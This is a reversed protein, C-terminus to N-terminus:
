LTRGREEEYVEESEGFDFEYKGEDPNFTLGANKYAEREALTEASNIRAVREKRKQFYSKARIVLRKALNNEKYNKEIKEEKDEIAGIKLLSNKIFDYREKDIDVSLPNAKGEESVDLVTGGIKSNDWKIDLNNEKMFTKLDKEYKIEGIKSSVKYIIYALPAGFVIGGFLFGVAASIAKNKINSKTPKKISVIKLEEPKDKGEHGKEPEEEPTDKGEDGKEPEEESKDKGEDDKEPEEEPKDKGEDDKVPEEEPTDKGEDDKVPEEESKDKGEGINKYIDVLNDKSYKYQNEFIYEMYNFMINEDFKNSIVFDKYNNIWTEILKDNPNEMDNKLQEFLNNFDEIIKNDNGDYINKKVYEIAEKQENSLVDDISDKSLGVQELITIYADKKSPDMKIIEDVFDKVTQKAFEKLGEDSVNKYLSVFYKVQDDFIKINENM